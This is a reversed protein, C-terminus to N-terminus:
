RPFRSARVLTCVQLNYESYFSSRGLAKAQVHEPHMAWTRQHEETDFEVVTCREGDEAIYVKHSIYGPLNTVIARMRALWTAYDAGADARLRNRFLTVIM